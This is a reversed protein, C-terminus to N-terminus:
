DRGVKPGVQNNGGGRKKGKGGITIERWAGAGEGKKRKNRRRPQRLVKSTSKDRSSERKADDPLNQRGERGTKGNAQRGGRKGGGEGKGRAGKGGARKSHHPANVM